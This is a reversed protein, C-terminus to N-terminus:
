KETKIKILKEYADNILTIMNNAYKKDGSYMDPHYIKAQKYYHTKIDEVSYKNFDNLNLNLVRCCLEVDDINKLINHLPTYFEPEFKAYKANYENILNIRKIDDDTLQYQDNNETTNKNIEHVNKDFKKNWHIILFRVIMSTTLIGTIMPGFLIRSGFLLKAENFQIFLGLATSLGAFTVFAIKNEDNVKDGNCLVQYNKIITLLKDVILFLFYIKHVDISKM